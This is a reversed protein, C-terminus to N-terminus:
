EARFTIICVIVKQIPPCAVSGRRGIWHPYNNIYNRLEIGFHARAEDM